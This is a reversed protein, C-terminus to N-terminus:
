RINEDTEVEPMSLYANLNTGDEAQYQVNTFQTADAGFISDFVVIGVLLLAVLGISGLLSLIIRRIWKMM